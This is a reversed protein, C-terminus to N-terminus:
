FLGGILVIVRSFGSFRPGSLERRHDAARPPPPPPNPHDISELNSKNHLSQKIATSERSIRSRSAHMATHKCNRHGPTTRFHAGRRPSVGNEGLRRIQTEIRKSSVIQNLGPSHTAGAPGWILWFHTGFHYLIHDSFFHFLSRLGLLRGLPM